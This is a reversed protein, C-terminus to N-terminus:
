VASVVADPPWGWNGHMDMGCQYRGEQEWSLQLWWPAHKAWWKSLTGKLDEPSVELYEGDCLVKWWGVRKGTGRLFLPAWPKRNRTEAASKREFPAVTSANGECDAIVRALVRGTTKYHRWSGEREPKPCHERLARLVRWRPCRVSWTKGSMRFVTMERRIKEGLPVYYEDEEEKSQKEKRAATKERARQAQDDNWFGASPRVVKVSRSPYGYVWGPVTGDKAVYKTLYMCNEKTLPKIHVFGKGWTLRLLTADIYGVDLLLIHWHVWGGEQFELKCIWLGKLDRGIADGLKRMFRSVHKRSRAQDFCDQSDLYHKRDYTLTIFRGEHGECRAWLRKGLKWGLIG